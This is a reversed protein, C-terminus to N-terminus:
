KKKKSYNELGLYAKWACSQNLRTNSAKRKRLAEGKTLKKTTQNPKLPINLSIM